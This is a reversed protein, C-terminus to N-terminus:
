LARKVRKKLDRGVKGLESLLKKKSTVGRTPRSAKGGKKGIESYFEKPRQKSSSAKKKKTPM